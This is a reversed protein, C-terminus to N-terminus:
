SRVASQRRPMELLAKQISALRRIPAGGYAGFNVIADCAIAFCNNDLGCLIDYLNISRDQNFLSLGFEVLAREGSSLVGCDSLMEEIYISREDLDVHRWVEGRGCLLESTFVTLACRWGTDKLLSLREENM